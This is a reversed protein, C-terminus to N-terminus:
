KLEKIKNMNTLVLIVNNATPVVDAIANGNAAGVPSVWVPTNQRMMFDDNDGVFLQNMAETCVQILDQVSIPPGPEFALHSSNGWYTYLPGPFEGLSTMVPLDLRERQLAKILSGLSMHPEARPASKISKKLDAIRQKDNM